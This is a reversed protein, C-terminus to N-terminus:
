RNELIKLTEQLIKRVEKGAACDTDAISIGRNVCKVAEEDFPIRGAVMINEENCFKEIEETKEPNIDWRNVCVGHPTGFHKLTKVIRKLDSIGSVSPETVVLVFDVGSVSAIVPCGIGPSGDIVAISEDDLQKMNSKVKSVLKGSAGEGMKLRATSFAPIEPDSEDGCNYRYTYGSVVQETRVAKQPCVYECVGCGECMFSNIVAKGEGDYSIAGFRCKEGCLGCGSCLSRDAAAKPMACYEETEPECQQRNLIHLNPADVDCDAYSKSNLLHIFASAVTTKGTGGKGSLILIKKM